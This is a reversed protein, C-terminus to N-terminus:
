PAEDAGIDFRVGRPRSDGEFDFAPGADVADKAPSTAKLHYDGMGADVFLPDMNMVGAIPTPGAITSSLGCGEVPARASVGPAWIISARIIMGPACQVARPGNGTNTGSDAITSFAIAGMAVPLEIARESTGYALVNTLNVTGAVLSIVANTGGHITAGEVVLQAGPLVQIGSLADEIIADRVTISGGAVIGNIAGHVKVDEVIITGPGLHMADDGASDFELHRIVAAIQVTLVTGDLGIPLSM